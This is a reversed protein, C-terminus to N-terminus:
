IDMDKKKSVRARLVAEITMVLTIRGGFDTLM